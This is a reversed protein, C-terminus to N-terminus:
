VKKVREMREWIPANHTPNSWARAHHLPLLVMVFKFIDATHSTCYSLFALILGLERPEGGM